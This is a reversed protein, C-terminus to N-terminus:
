VVHTTAETVILHMPTDHPEREIREVVQCEFALGVRRADPRAKALTADYHGRGWGLRHGERDFAVGPVVFVDITEIAVPEGVPERLGFAGVVLGDITSPVLELVREGAVVRPYVVTGGLERVIADLADTAVESGKAAYLAVIQGAAFLPRAHEVIASMAEAREEVTMADRRSILTRRTAPKGRSGDSRTSPVVTTLLPSVAADYGRRGM